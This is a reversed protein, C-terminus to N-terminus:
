GPSFESERSFSLAYFVAGPDALGDAVGLEPRQNVQADACRGCPLPRRAAVVLALLPRCLPRPLWGWRLLQRLGIGGAGCDDSRRPHPEEAPALFAALRAFTVPHAVIRRAIPNKM